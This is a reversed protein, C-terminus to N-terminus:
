FGATTGRLETPLLVISNLRMEGGGGCGSGCGGSALFPIGGEAQMAYATLGSRQSLLGEECGSCHGGLGM